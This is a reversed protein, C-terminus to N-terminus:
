NKLDLLTNCGKNDCTKYSPMTYCGCGKICWVTTLSYHTAAVILYFNQKQECPSDPFLSKGTKSSSTSFVESPLRSGEMRDMKWSFVPSTNWTVVTNTYKHIQTNWKNSKMKEWGYLRNSASFSADNSEARVSIRSLTSTSVNDGNSVSGSEPMKECWITESSLTLKSIHEHRNETRQYKCSNM